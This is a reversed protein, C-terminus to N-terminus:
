KQNSKPFFFLSAAPVRGPKNELEVRTRKVPEKENEKSVSADESSYVADAPVPLDTIDVLKRNVPAAQNTQKILGFNVRGNYTAQSYKVALPLNWAFATGHGVQGYYRYSIKEVYQITEKYPPIRNGFKMVAGEGANYGALALRVDKFTDLLFRLYRAGARLCKDPNYREDTTGNVVLGLRRATGPMLQTMCAAGKNSVANMRGNSEQSILAQFLRLDLKEERAIRSVKSPIDEVVLVVPSVSVTRKVKQKVIKQASNTKKTKQAFINEAFFTVNFLTLCVALQLIKKYKNNM